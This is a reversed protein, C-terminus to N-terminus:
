SGTGAPQVAAAKAAVSDLSFRVPLRTWMPVRLNGQKAPAFRLEPAGALAASDFAAFGSTAYV